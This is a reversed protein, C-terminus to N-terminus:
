WNWCVRQSWVLLFSEPHRITTCVRLSRRSPASLNGETVLIRAGSGSLASAHNKGYGPLSVLKAVITANTTCKIGDNLSHRLGYRHVDHICHRALSWGIFQFVSRQRVSFHHEGTSQTAVCTSFARDQRHGRAQSFIPRCARPIVSSLVQRLSTRRFSLFVRCRLFSSGM